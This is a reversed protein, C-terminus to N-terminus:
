WQSPPSNTFPHDDDMPLDMPNGNALNDEAKGYINRFKYTEGDTTVANGNLRLCSIADGLITGGTVVNNTVQLLSDKYMLIGGGSLTNGDIINAASNTRNGDHSYGLIAYRGSSGGSTVTIKNGRIVQDTNKWYVLPGDTQFTSDGQDMTNHELWVNRGDCNVYDGGRNHHFSNNEILIDQSRYSLSEIDIGFQPATGEIHHIENADIVVRMGGVISIGQRRCRSIHSNRITIDKCSSGADGQAVILVGDGIPDRLTVGDILVRESQNEISICHGEEQAEPFTHSDRDGVITGGYIAVNQKGRITVVGYANTDNPILQLVTQDDMVLAMNSQLEVSVMYSDVKKGVLYTGSPLRVRAYGNSVAWQIAQNIGDTTETPHTGDSSIGWRSLEVLYEKDGISPELATPRVPAPPTCHDVEGVSSGGSSHSCGGLCCVMLLSILVPAIKM